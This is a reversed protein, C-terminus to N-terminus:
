LNGHLLPYICSDKIDLLTQKEKKINIMVKKILMRKTIEKCNISANIGKKRIFTEPM